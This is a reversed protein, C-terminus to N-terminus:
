FYGGWVVLNAPKASHFLFFDLSFGCGFGGSGVLKKSRDCLIGVVLCTFDYM